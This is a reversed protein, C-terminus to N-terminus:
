QRAFIWTTSNDYNFLKLERESLLDVRTAPLGAYGTKLNRGEFYYPHKQEGYGVAMGMFKMDVKVMGDGGFALKFTGGSWKKPEKGQKQEHTALWTGQIDGQLASLEQPSAPVAVVPASKICAGILLLSLAAILRASALRTSVGIVCSTEPRKM